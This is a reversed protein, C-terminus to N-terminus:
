CDGAAQLIECVLVQNRAAAGRYLEQLEPFWERAFELEESREEDDAADRLATLDAVSWLRPDVGDLYRALRDVDERSNYGVRDPCYYRGGLVLDSSGYHVQQIPEFEERATTGTLYRNRALLCCYTEPALQLQPMEVAAYLLVEGVLTHWFDRDFALGQAVRGVLLEGLGPSYQEVFARAPSVLGACLERCPEFSRQRWSLALAPCVQREFATADLLMFYIPM